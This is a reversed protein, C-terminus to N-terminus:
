FYCVEKNEFSILHFLFLVHCLCSHVCGWVCLGYIFWTQVNINVTQYIYELMYTFTHLQKQYAHTHQTKILFLITFLCSHPCFDPCLLQLSSISLPCFIVFVQKELQATSLIFFIFLLWIGLLKDQVSLSFFYLSKQWWPAMISLFFFFYVCVIIHSFCLPIPNKKKQNM